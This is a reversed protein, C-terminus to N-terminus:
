GSRRGPPRYLGGGRTPTLPKRERELAGPEAGARGGARGADRAAEASGGLGEGEAGAGAGAGPAARAPAVRARPALGQGPRYVGGGRTPTLPKRGRAGPAAGGPGGDGDRESGGGAEAPPEAAGQPAPLTRPALGMGPRYVGGGRHPPLPKRERRAEESERGERGERWSAAAPPRAPAGLAPPPPEFPKSRAGKGLSGMILRHAVKTNTQSRPPRIVSSLPIRRAEASWQGYRRLTFARPAERARQAAAASRFVVLWSGDSVRQTAAGGQQLPALLRELAFEDCHAPFDSAELIQEPDLADSYADPPASSWQRGGSGANLAGGVAGGAVEWEKEPDADAGPKAVRRASFGEASKEWEEWDAEGEAGGEAAGGGRGDEDTSEAQTEWDEEEEEEGETNDGQREWDEEADGAGERGGETGERKEEDGARGAGLAVGGLRQWDLEADGPSIKWLELEEFCVEGARGAWCDDDQMGRARRAHASSACRADV